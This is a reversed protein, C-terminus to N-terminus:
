VLQQIVPLIAKPSVRNAVEVGMEGKSGQGREGGDGSGSM